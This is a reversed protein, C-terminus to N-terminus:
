NKTNTTEQKKQRVIARNRERLQSMAANLSRFNPTINDQYSTLNVDKGPFLLEINFSKHNSRSRVQQSRSMSCRAVAQRFLSDQEQFHADYYAVSDVSKLHEICEQYKLARAYCATMEHEQLKFNDEQKDKSCACVLTM